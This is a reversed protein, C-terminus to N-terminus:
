FKVFRIVYVIQVLLGKVRRVQDIIYNRKRRAALPVLRILCQTAVQVLHDKAKEDEEPADPGATQM